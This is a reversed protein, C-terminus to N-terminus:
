QGASEVEPVRKPSITESVTGLSLGKAKIARIMDKLALSSPETPHMLILSGPEVHDAIKRVISAPSPKRWDVTDLTWLVTRLGMGHAIDVTTQNFDGSPPAFLKNKAGLEKTLLAETKAIESTARARDLTSMNQHSYAHNSVEHGEQMITRATAINQSLWSGDFFFTAKVNEERLTDLMKPIYEDGWAVNIMLSVMPKSPNGKYVPHPGLQDLHVKAPIERMILKPTEPFGEKEALELTKEVDVELGNYGPIAKWVRDVVANVPAVYRRKAEEEIRSRMEARRKELGEVDTVRVAALRDSSLPAFVARGSQERAYEVFRDIGELQSIGVLCAAVGASVYLWQKRKM